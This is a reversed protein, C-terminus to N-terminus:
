QAPTPKEPEPAATATPATAPITAAPAQISRPALSRPAPPTQACLPAVIIVLLSLRVPTPTRM